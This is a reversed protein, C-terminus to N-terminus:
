VRITIHDSSDFVGIQWFSVSRKKVEKELTDKNEPPVACLLGGSTQADFCVMRRTEDLNPDIVMRSAYAELNRHTGGPWLGNAGHTLVGPLLPLSSVQLVAGLNNNQGLMECLHGVLGFGTVDTMARVGATCAADAAKGNLAMMSATVAKEEEKTTLGGKMATSIVGTGLPKSLFIL